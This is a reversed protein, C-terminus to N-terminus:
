CSCCERNKDFGEIEVDGFNDMTLYIRKDIIVRKMRDIQFQTTLSIPQRSLSCLRKYMDTLQERQSEISYNMISSYQSIIEGLKVSAYYDIEM